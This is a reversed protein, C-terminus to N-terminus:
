GGVLVGPHHNLNVAHNWEALSRRPSQPLTKTATSQQQHNKEGQRDKTIRESLLRLWPEGTRPGSKLAVVPVMMQRTM